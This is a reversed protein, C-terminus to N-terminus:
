SEWYVILGRLPPYEKLPLVSSLTHHTGTLGMARSEDFFCMPALHKGCGQCSTVLANEAENAKGCVHCVRIHISSSM